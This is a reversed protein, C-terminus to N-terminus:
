EAVAKKAVVVLRGNDRSYECTSLTLLKDGYKASVGTDYLALKRCQEVYETFEKETEANAFLYYKFGTDDYVTTKFVTIIEYEAIETLTDFRIKKHNEYFNKNEFEELGAFMSGNKMHHGYIIVNDSPKEPDCHEAIYPVGYDSYEKEFSHKLYFDPDDPTYMVPYNIQTGDIAIWGAMDNNQESLQRYRELLSRKEELNEDTGSKGEPQQEAMEALQAFEEDAKHASAYYRIIQYASIVFVLFCILIGVSYVRKRINLNKENKCNPDKM